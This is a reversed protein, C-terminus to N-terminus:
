AVYFSSILAPWIPWKAQICVKGNGQVANVYVLFNVSRGVVAIYTFDAYLDPRLKVRNRYCLAVPFIEVGGQIPRNDMVLNGGPM